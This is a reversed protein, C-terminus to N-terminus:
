DADNEIDIEVCFPCHKVDGNEFGAAKHDPASAGQMQPELTVDFDRKCNSCSFRESTEGPKLLQHNM